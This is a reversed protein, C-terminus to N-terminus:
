EFVKDLSQKYNPTRAVYEQTHIRIRIHFYVYNGNYIALLKRLVSMLRYLLM